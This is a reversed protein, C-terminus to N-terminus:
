LKLGISTLLSRLEEWHKKSYSPSDHAESWIEHFLRRIRHHRAFGVPEDPSHSEDYRDEFSEELSQTGHWQVNVVSDIFRSYRAREEIGGDRFDFVDYELSSGRAFIVVHASPTSILLKSGRGAEFTIMQQVVDGLLRTITNPPTQSSRRRWFM